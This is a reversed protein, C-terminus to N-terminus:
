HQHSTPAPRGLEALWNHAGAIRVRQLRDLVDHDFFHERRCRSRADACIRDFLHTTVFTDASARHLRGSPVIGMEGVLSGLGYSGRGPFLRRALLLTCLTRVPRGELFNKAEHEYFKRDFGANHCVVASTGIFSALQCMAIASTPAGNLMATTIGTIRTIETPVRIGPDVFTLFERGPRGDVVERASVEIVRAGMAPSLGTTEFDLVVFRGSPISNLPPRETSVEDIRFCSIMWRAHATIFKEVELALCGLSAASWGAGYFDGNMM